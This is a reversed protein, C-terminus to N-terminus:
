TVLSSTAILEATSKRAIELWKNKLSNGGLFNANKIIEKKIDAKVKENECRLLIREIVYYGYNVRILIRMRDEKIMEEAYQQITVQM